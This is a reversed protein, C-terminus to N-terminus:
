LTLFVDTIGSTSFFYSYRDHRQASTHSLVSFVASSFALLAALYAPFLRHEKCAFRRAGRAGGGALVGTM